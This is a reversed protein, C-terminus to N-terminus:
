VYLAEMKNKPHSLQKNQYNLNAYQNKIHDSIIEISKQIRVNLLNDTKKDAIVILYYPPTKAIILWNKNTKLSILNCDPEILRNIKNNIERIIELGIAALSENRIDDTPSNSIVLGEDDLVVAAHVGSYETLYDVAIQFKNNKDNINM